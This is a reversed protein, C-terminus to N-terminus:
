RLGLLKLFETDGITCSQVLGKAKSSYCGQIFKYLYCLRNNACGTGHSLSSHVGRLSFKKKTM